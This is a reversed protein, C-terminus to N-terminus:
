HHGMESGRSTGEAGIHCLSVNKIHCLKSLIIIVNNMRNGKKQFSVGIGELKKRVLICGEHTLKLM